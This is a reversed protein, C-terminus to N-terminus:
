HDHLLLFDDLVVYFNCFLHCSFLVGVFVFPLRRQLRQVNVLIPVLERDNIRWQIALEIAEVVNVLAQSENEGVSAVEPLDPCTALIMDDDKALAVDYVLM